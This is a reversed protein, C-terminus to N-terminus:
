IKLKCLDSPINKIAKSSLAKGSELSLVKFNDATSDILYLKGDCVKPQHTTWFFNYKWKKELSYCGSNNHDGEKLLSARNCVVLEASNDSYAVFSDVPFVLATEPWQKGDFSFVKGSNDNAYIANKHVFIDNIIGDFKYYNITSLDHSIVVIYPFNNGDKDIKFGAIYTKDLYTLGDYASQIELSIKKGNPVTIKGDESWKVENTTNAQCSSILFCTILFSSLFNFKKM